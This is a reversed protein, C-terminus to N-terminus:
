TLTWTVPTSDINKTITMFEATTPIRFASECGDAVAQECTRWTIRKALLELCGNGDLGAPEDVLDYDDTWFQVTFSGGGLPLNRQRQLSRVTVGDALDAVDVISTQTAPDVSAFAPSCGSQLWAFCTAAGVCGEMGTVWPNAASEGTGSVITGSRLPEDARVANPTAILFAAAAAVTITRM